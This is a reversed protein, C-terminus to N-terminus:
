SEERKRGALARLHESQLRAEREPARPKQKKRKKYNAAEGTGGCLRALFADRTGGSACVILIDARLKDVVDEPIKWELIRGAAKRLALVRAPKDYLAVVVAKRTRALLKAREWASGTLLVVIDEGDIAVAASKKRRYPWHVISGDQCCLEM